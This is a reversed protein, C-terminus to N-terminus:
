EIRLVRDLGAYAFIQRVRPLMQVFTVTQGAAQLRKSFEILVGIGASSIYDLGSCDLTVSQQIKRFAQEAKEAEAADLRGVLKVRGAEASQLDFM